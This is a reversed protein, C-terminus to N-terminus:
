ERALSQNMEASSEMAELGIKTTLAVKNNTPHKEEQSLSKITTMIMKM